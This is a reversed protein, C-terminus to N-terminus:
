IANFHDINRGVQHMEEDEFVGRLHLFGAEELFHALEERDDDPSFIRDLDLPGGELDRFDVDGTEYVKRGDLLARLIPEWSVWQDVTGLIIEVRATMVLGMTSQYDQVLDSLAEASLRTVVGAHELGPEFDLQGASGGITLQVGDVDLGLAPVGLFAVGRAALDGHAARAKPLVTDLVEELSLNRIDKLLRARQDIPM